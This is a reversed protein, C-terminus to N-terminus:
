AASSRLPGYYKPPQPNFGGQIFRVYTRHLPCAQNSVLDSNDPLVVLDYSSAPTLTSGGALKGRQEGSSEIRALEAGSAVPTATKHTGDHFANMQSFLKTAETICEKSLPQVAAQPQKPQASAAAVFTTLVIALTTTSTQIPM